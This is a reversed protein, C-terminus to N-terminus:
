TPYERQWCELPYTAALTRRVTPSSLVKCGLEMVEDFTAQTRWYKETLACSADCASVPLSIGLSRRWRNVVALAFSHITSVTVPLKPCHRAFTAQLRRRAGHMVAIALARQHPEIVLESGRAAAQEMLKRTKGSGAEGTIYLPQPM